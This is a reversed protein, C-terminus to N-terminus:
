RTKKAIRECLAALRCGALAIQRSSVRQTMRQYAPSPEGSKPLIYVFDIALQHSEDAWNRPNLAIKNLRCGWKKELKRAIDKVDAQHDRCKKYLLGGGRDWYEHLNKAISTQYLLVLNGGQDGEPNHRSVRTIAHLPQHLDGVVHWLIRVAIAQNKPSSKTNELVATAQQIAIVANMKKPHPETSGDMSYPIDIYHMPKFVHNHDGYLRDLWTAANVLDGPQHHSHLWKNKQIFIRKTEPSMYDCAIQAIVQHGLANWSLLPSSYYFILLFILRLKNM